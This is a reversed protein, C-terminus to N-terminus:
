NFNKFTKKKLSIGFSGLWFSESMNEYSITFRQWMVEESAYVIKFSFLRMLLNLYFTVLWSVVSM